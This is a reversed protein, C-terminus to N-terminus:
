DAAAVRKRLLVTLPLTIVALSWVIVAGSPLDFLVSASLGTAYALAGAAVGLAIGRNGAFRHSALAPLILSAFVLYVGLLQVSQTIAVAFFFYFYKRSLWHPRWQIITLVVAGILGVPWLQQWEVWVIQGNLLDKLQEGGHPHHALLLIAATAALVFVVGILAEQFRGAQKEMRSLLFAGVLGGTLAVLQIEWGHSDIGMASALLIGLGAMQAIALDIFIIGRRLVERGLPVHSALVLLGAFFAPLVISLLAANM